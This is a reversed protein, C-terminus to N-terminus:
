GSPASPKNKGTQGPPGDDIECYAPSGWCRWSSMGNEGAYEERRHRLERAPPSSGPRSACELSSFSSPEHGIILLEQVADVALGIVFALPLPLFVAIGDGTGVVVGGRPAVIGAAHQEVGLVALEGLDFAVREVGIGVALQAHAAEVHDLHHFAVVAQLVGHLARALAALVLPLADRPILGDVHDGGVDLFLDVVLAQAALGDQHSVAGSAVDVPLDGENRARAEAGGVDAADVEGAPPAVHRADAAGGAGQAVIGDDVRGLRQGVAVGVGFPLVGVDQHHPAVLRQLGVAVPIQSVPQVHAHLHPRLDDGDVRHQGPPACAGFVPQLGMGAGVAADGQCPEVDDHALVEDVVLEHVVPARVVLSSLSCQWCNVGSHAADMVPTGASSM